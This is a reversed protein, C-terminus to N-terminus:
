MFIVTEKMHLYDKCIVHTIHQPATHPPTLQHPTRHKLPPTPTSLHNPTDISHIECQVSDNRSNVYHAALTIGIQEM